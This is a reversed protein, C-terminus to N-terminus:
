PNDKALDFADALADIQGEVFARSVPANSEVRDFGHYAGPVVELTCRVGAQRLRGAYAVAEDHFLDHTGVGIWAPPLGSLDECRAPAALGPVDDPYAEGLYSRWGFRNSARDWIRFWREDIDTRRTTRDDLMPYVLLQFAPAEEDREKALLCLATALGGGASAGGVAIRSPEVDPQRVLWRLAAYCDELPAPFPHEPALRYEVSAVVAGLETAVRRCFRDDQRAIGGVMGGGHIWLLAPRRSEAVTPRHVWVSVGPEVPVEIADSRSLANAMKMLLRNAWLVRPSTVRRPLFRAFRLDPHFGQRSM